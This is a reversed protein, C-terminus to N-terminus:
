QAFLKIEPNLDNQNLLLKIAENAKESNIDVLIKILGVQVYPNDQLSLSNILSNRIVPEESFQSLADLAALRVNTNNDFDLTNILINILNKEINQKEISYNIAKIKESATQEKLMELAVQQKLITVENELTSIKSKNLQQNQIILGFVTGSIFLLISAAVKMINTLSDFWLRKKLVNKKEDELLSIFENQFNSNSEVIETNILLENLKRFQTLKNSCKTCVEIHKEVNARDISSLNEDLYDLFIGNIDNCNM